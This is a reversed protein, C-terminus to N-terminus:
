SPGDYRIAWGITGTHQIGLGGDPSSINKRYFPYIKWRDSGLSLIQEPEYNTIRLVRFDNIAAVISVKSSARAISVLAPFLQSDGNWNNPTIEFFPKLYVTILPALGTDGLWEVGDIPAHLYSSRFKGYFIGTSNWFPAAASTYGTEGGGYLSFYIGNTDYSPVTAGFWNGTGINGPVEAVGFALWQFYNNNFKIVLFVNSDTIHINYNVPFAVLVTGMSKIRCFSNASPGGTLNSGSVGTGGEIRLETSSVNSIKVFCPGKLFFIVM